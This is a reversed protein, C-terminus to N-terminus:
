KTTWTIKKIDNRLIHVPNIDYIIFTFLRHINDDYEIIYAKINVHIEKQYKKSKPDKQNVEKPIGLQRTSSFECM